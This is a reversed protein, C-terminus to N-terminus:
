PLPCGTRDSLEQLDFVRDVREGTPPFQWTPYHKIGEQKCIASQGSTQGEIGCEIYPLYSKSARFKAKQDICHPCWWAGYMKAGRDGLCRAFADYKHQDRYYFFYVVGVAIVIVALYIAIRKWDRGAGPQDTERQQQRRERRQQSM